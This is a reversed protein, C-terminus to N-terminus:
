QLIIDYLTTLFIVYHCLLMDAMGSKSTIPGTKLLAVLLVPFCCPFLVHQCCFFPVRFCSLRIRLHLCVDMCTQYMVHCAHEPGHCTIVHMIVITDM